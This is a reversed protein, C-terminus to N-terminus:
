DTPQTTPITIKKHRKELLAGVLTEITEQDAEPLQDIQHLLRDIRTNVSKAKLLGAARFVEEESINFGAALMALTEPKPKREGSLLRSAVGSDVGSERVLDAPKWNHKALETNLWTSFDM